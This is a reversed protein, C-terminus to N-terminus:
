APAPKLFTFAARAFNSRSSRVAPSAAPTRRKGPLRDQVDRRLRDITETEEGLLIAAQLRDFAAVADASCFMEVLSRTESLYIRLAQGSSAHLIESQTGALLREHIRALAERRLCQLFQRRAPHQREPKGGNRRAPAIRDLLRYVPQYAAASAVVFIGLSLDIM